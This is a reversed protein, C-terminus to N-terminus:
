AITFNYIELLIVRQQQWYIEAGVPIGQPDLQIDLHLPYEEYSDDISLLFGNDNSGCGALYGSKLSNWFVWLSSVPSLQGEALVPFALVVDDYTLAAGSSTFEGTIGSISEPSNVRFRLTDDKVDCSVQFTYIHTDYDASITAYFSCSQAEILQTRLETAQKLQSDGSTCGSLLITLVLLLSFRKM